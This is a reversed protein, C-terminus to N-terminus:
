PIAGARGSQELLRRHTGVRAWFADLEYKLMPPATGALLQGLLGLDAESLSLPATEFWEAIEFETDADPADGSSTGPFFRDSWFFDEPSDGGAPSDDFRAGADAMFYRRAEYEKHGWGKLVNTFYWKFCAHFAGKEPNWYAMGKTFAEGCISLLDEEALLGGAVYRSAHFKMYGM